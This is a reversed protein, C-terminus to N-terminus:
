LEDVDAEDERKVTLAREKSAADARARMVYGLGWLEMVADIQTMIIRERDAQEHRVVYGTEESELEGREVTPDESYEKLRCGDLQYQGYHIHTHTNFIVCSVLQRSFPKSDLLARREVEKPCALLSLHAHIRDFSAPSALTGVDALIKTISTHSDVQAKTCTSAPILADGSALLGLMVGTIQFVPKWPGSLPSKSKEPLSASTREVSRHSAGVSEMSRALLELGILPSSAALSPGDRPDAADMLQYATIDDDDEEKPVSIPIERRPSSGPSGIESNTSSNIHPLSNVLAEIGPFLGRQDHVALLMELPTLLIDKGRMDAARLISERIEQPSASRRGASGTRSSTRSSSTPPLGVISASKTRSVAAVEVTPADANDHKESAIRSDSESKSRVRKTNVTVRSIYRRGCCQIRVAAAETTLSRGDRQSDLEGVEQPGFDGDVGVADVTTNDEIVLIHTSDSRIVRPSPHEIQRKEELEGGEAQLVGRVWDAELRMRELAEENVWDTLTVAHRQREVEAERTKGWTKRGEARAYPLSDTPPTPILLHALRRRTPSDVALRKNIDFPKGKKNYYYPKHVKHWHLIVDLEHAEEASIRPPVAMATEFLAEGQVQLRELTRLLAQQHSGIFDEVLLMMGREEEREIGERFAQEASEVDPAFNVYQKMVAVVIATRERQESLLVDQRANQEELTFITMRAVHSLPRAARAAFHEETVVPPRPRLAPMPVPRPPLVPPLAKLAAVAANYGDESDQEEAAAALAALEEHHPVVASSVDMYPLAVREAEPPPLFLTRLHAIILM